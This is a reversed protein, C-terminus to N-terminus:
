RKMELPTNMFSLLEGSFLYGLTGLFISLTGLVVVFGNLYRKLGDYDGRGKQQSLITLSANNIGICFSLTTFLITSSIAVAGLSHDGLLNGVWLMDVFQYSSQLFNALIIPGSFVILQQLINGKTFDHLQKPM